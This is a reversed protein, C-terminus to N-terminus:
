TGNSGIRKSCQFDEEDEIGEDTVSRNVDADSDSVGGVSVAMSFKCSAQEVHSEWRSSVRRDSGVEM